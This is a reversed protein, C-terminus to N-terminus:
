CFLSTKCKLRHCSYETHCSGRGPNSFVMGQEILFSAGQVPTGLTTVCLREAMSLNQSVSSFLLLLLLSCAPSTSPFSLYHLFPFLSQSPFSPILIFLTKPDRYLILQICTLTIGLLSESLDSPESSTLHWDNCTKPLIFFIFYLCRILNKLKKKKVQIYPSDTIVLTERERGWQMHTNTNTM